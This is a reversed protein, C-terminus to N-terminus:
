SIYELLNKDGRADRLHIHPHIKHTLTCFSTPLILLFGLIKSDDSLCVQKLRMTIHWVRKIEM